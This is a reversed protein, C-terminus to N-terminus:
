NQSPFVGYLAIIYSIPLFPMMNDHPQGGGTAQILDSHMLANPQKTSFQQLGKAWVMGEPSTSSADGSQAAVGHTHEPLQNETLTVQETGGLQGLSFHTGVSSVGRGISIRGRLDPLAFTVQGDGGFRTGILAFLVDNEAIQLLSGDCFAWGEPAFNGAFMRIEGVFQDVNKVRESQKM